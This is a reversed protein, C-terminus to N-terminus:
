SRSSDAATWFREMSIYIYSASWGILLLGNLTEAGALLRLPGLPVLDGFGLSTYTEASFYLYDVFALDASGGLAGLHFHEALLAYGLAYLVVHLAHSVFTGLMVLLMKARPQIPIRGLWFSLLRLIEYHVVTTAVLLAVCVITVL